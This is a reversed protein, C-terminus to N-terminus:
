SYRVTITAFGTPKPPPVEVDFTFKSLLDLALKRILLKDDYDRIKRSEEDARARAMKALVNPGRGKRRFKKELRSAKHMKQNAVAKMVEVANQEAVIQQRVIDIIDVTFIDVANGNPDKPDSDILLNIFTAILDRAKAETLDPGGDADDIKGTRDYKDRRDKDALVDKALAVLAFKDRSGGKADPHTKAARKRYARHVDDPTADRDLGLEAYPDFDPKEAM